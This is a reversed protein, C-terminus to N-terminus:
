EAFQFLQLLNGELDKFTAIWIEGQRNPAEVFEVGASKLRTHEALIDDTDFAVLHRAPDSAMGRVDSHTGLAITPGSPDGLIVFGPAEMGVKLGLVDRYFPLLNNLDASWISALRLGKIM